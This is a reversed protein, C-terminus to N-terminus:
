ASKGTAGQSNKLTGEIIKNISNQYEAEMQMEIINKM